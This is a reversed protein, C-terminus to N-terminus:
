HCGDGTKLIEPQLALDVLPLGLAIIAMLGRSVLDIVNLALSQDPHCTKAALREVTISFPHVPRSRSIPHITTLHHRLVSQSVKVTQVLRHTPTLATSVRCRCDEQTHCRVFVAAAGGFFDVWVGIADSPGM